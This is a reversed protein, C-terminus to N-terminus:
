SSSGAQSPSVLLLLESLIDDSYERPGELAENILRRARLANTWPISDFHTNIKHISNLTLANNTALNRVKYDLNHISTILQLAAEYDQRQMIHHLQERHERSQKRISNIDLNQTAKHEIIKQVLLEFSEVSHRLQPAIKKWERQQEVRELQQLASQLSHRIRKNRQLSSPQSKYEDILLLISTITQHAHHRTALNFAERLEKELKEDKRSLALLPHTPM